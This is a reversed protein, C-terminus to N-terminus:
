EDDPKQTPEKATVDYLATWVQPNADAWMATGGAIPVRLMLPRNKDGNRLRSRDILYLYDKDRRQEVFVNREGSDNIEVWSRTIKGSTTYFTKPLPPVLWERIAKINGIAASVGALTASSSGIAVVMFAITPNRKWWNEIVDGPLKDDKKKASAAM